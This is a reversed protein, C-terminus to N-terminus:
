RSASLRENRNMEEIVERLAHGVKDRIQERGMVSWSKTSAHYKLFRVTGEDHNLVQDMIMAIVSSKDVRTTASVYSPISDLVIKRFRVCGPLEYFHRGRSCVVDINTPGPTDEQSSNTKVLNNLMLAMSLPNYMSGLLSSSPAEKIKNVLPVFSSCVPIPESTDIGDLTPEFDFTIRDNAPWSTEEYLPLPELDAESFFLGVPYSETYDFALADLENSSLSLM